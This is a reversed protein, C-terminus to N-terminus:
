KVPPVFTGDPQVTGGGGNGVGNGNGNGGANNNGPDGGVGVGVGNNGGPGAGNNGGGNGVGNGNGNGGANNNGPDGGVGVGVGNNGGGPNTGPAAGGTTPIPAPSVPTAGPSNGGSPNPVSGNGLGPFPSPTATLISNGPTLSNSLTSLPSVGAESPSLLWNQDSAVQGTSDVSIFAPNLTISESFPEQETLAELTEQRVAELAPGLPSEANPNDLELGEVLPSTQYFTPLDFEVVQVQNNQILAMQGGYLSYETSGCDAVDEGCSSATITMPGAPNNTLAMVLTLDSEPVYRVVVASGQIGTVASPTQINTRGRGPPILLLVTGNTLRFNRTNPVFRFTAREGVRALSGDNFRLDAQSSAATRLADGVALFDSMRAARAQRGRPIFEVRNRLAEVEARNLTVSAQAPLGALVIAVLSALGTIQTALHRHSRRYFKGVNLM